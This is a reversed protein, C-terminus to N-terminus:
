GEKAPTDDDVVFTIAQNSALLQKFSERFAHVANQDALPDGCGQCTKPSYQNAYINLLVAMGCNRCEIGLTKFDKLNLVIQRRMLTM